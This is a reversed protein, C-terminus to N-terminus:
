PVIFNDLGTPFQTLNDHGAATVAVIDEIRIAGLDKYYLGPEITIVEGTKLTHPRGKSVGPAEHIELGIGHGLGHFFGQMRGDKVGTVYGREVFLDNVMDYLEPGDQGDRVREIALLQSDLVTQYLKRMEESANGKLFTRTIDGCYHSDDSTPFIDVIITQHAYLPGSGRNHPDVGQNGCAIICDNPKYNQEAFFIRVAKKVREATLTEGDLELVDDEGISASALIDRVIGVAAAAVRQSERIKNIEEQSKYQRDPFINKRISIEIGKKRLEEAQGLHFNYPVDVATIELEELWDKLIDTANPKDKGKAKIRKTIESQSVIVDVMASAKGRDIELDNLMLYKKGKHELYVCHEVEFQISYFLGRNVDSGCTLLLPNDSKENDETM